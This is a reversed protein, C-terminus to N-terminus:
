SATAVTSTQSAVEEAGTAIQEATSRLQNSAAAIESSTEAVDTLIGRLSEVVKRASDALHGLEDRGTLSISVTLDKEALRDNVAILERVPATISRTIAVALLLSLLVAAALLAIVVMRGQQIMRDSEKGVREMEKGQHEIMRDMASLYSAQNKRVSTMLEKKAQEHNGAEILGIVLKQSEVYPGRAAVVEAFLAKGKDSKVTKELEALDKGVAERADVIRKAEKQIEQPDELIIMNRM